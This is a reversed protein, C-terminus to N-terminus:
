RGKAQQKAGGVVAERLRDSFNVSSDRLLIVTTAAAFFEAVAPDSTVVICDKARALAYGIEFYVNPNRDFVIGILTDCRDIEEAIKSIAEASPIITRLRVLETPLTFQIGNWFTECSGDNPMAVFIRKSYSM